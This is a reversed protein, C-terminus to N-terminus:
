FVVARDRTLVQARFRLMARPQEQEGLAVAPLLFDGALTPPPLGLQPPHKHLLCYQWMGWWSGFAGVDRSFAAAPGALGPSEGPSSAQYIINEGDKEPVVTHCM